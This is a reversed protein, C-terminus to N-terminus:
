SIHPSFPAYILHYFLSHISFWTIYLPCLFLRLLLPFFYQSFIHFVTPFTNYSLFLIFFLPSIYQKFNSYFQVPPQFSTLYCCNFLLLNSNLSPRDRQILPSEHILLDYSNSSKSIVRFDEISASHGTQKVHDRISSPSLSVIERGNRNIGIHENCRILLNMNTESYYTANCCSCSFKYVVNSCVLTPIRDKYQFLSSVRKASKFIFQVQIDRYHAKFLKTINNRIMFSRNGLYPLCCTFHPKGEGKDKPKTHLIYQLNLFNCIVKDILTGPFCNALLIQKIKVIEKHINVFLSCIHFARFVLICVLNIKYRTPSLSAFDTYLGTFTQKWFLGTSFHIGEKNVLVDLFPLSSNDEIEVTFRISPHYSNIHKLFFISTTKKWLCAFLIMLMVAIYYLNLSRLVNM